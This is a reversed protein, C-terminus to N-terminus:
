NKTEAERKQGQVHHMGYRGKLSNAQDYYMEVQWKQLYHLNDIQLKFKQIRNELFEASTNNGLDVYLDKQAIRAAESDSKMLSIKLAEDRFKYSFCYLDIWVKTKRAYTEPFHDLIHMIEDYSKSITDAYTNFDRTFEDRDKILKDHTDRYEKISPNFIIPYMELSDSYVKTLDEFSEGYYRAGSLAYSYMGELKAIYEDRDPQVTDSEDSVKWVYQKMALIHPITMPQEQKHGEQKNHCTLKRM